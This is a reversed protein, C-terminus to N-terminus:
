ALPSTPSPNLCVSPNPSPRPCAMGHPIESVSLHKLSGGGGVLGGHLGAYVFCLAQSALEHRHRGAQGTVTGAQRARAQAQRDPKHRHRGAQSTGTGAQRAQTETGAQRAQKAMSLQQEIISVVVFGALCGCDITPM